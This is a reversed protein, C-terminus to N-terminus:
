SACQVGDPLSFIVPKDGKEIQDSLHTLIVASAVSSTAWTRSTYCPAPQPLTL